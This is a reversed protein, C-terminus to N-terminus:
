FAKTKTNIIIENSYHRLLFLIKKLPKERLHVRLHKKLFTSKYIFWLQLLPNHKHYLLELM